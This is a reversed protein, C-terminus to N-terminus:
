QYYTIDATQTIDNDATATGRVDMVITGTTDLAGTGQYVGTTGGNKTLRTWYRQTNTGTSCILVYGEWANIASTTLTITNILGGALYVEVTKANVNNASTGAFEKKVCGSGGLTNAPLTYTMLVDQGTGVNGVVTFNKNIVGSPAFTTSGSGAKHSVTSSTTLTTFSGTSPAALGIATNDITGLTGALPYIAMQPVDGNQFTVFTKYAAGDVDYAQLGFNEATTTTGRLYGANSLTLGSFAGTVPTALGIYVNDITSLTGAPSAWAMQPTNGNLITVFNKYATGDVDYGRLTLSNADTTTTGITGANTMTISSSTVVVPAAVIGLTASYINVTANASGSLLLYPIDGSVLQMLTRTTGTDNEYTSFNVTDGSTSGSRLIADDSFTMNGVNSFLNGYTIKKNSGSSGQTTDSSDIIMLLDNGAPTNLNVLQPITVPAAFGVIPLLAAFIFAFSKIKNLM